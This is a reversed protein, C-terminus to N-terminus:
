SVQRTLYFFFFTLNFLFILTSSAPQSLWLQGRRGEAGGKKQNGLRRWCFFFGTHSVLLSLGWLLVVYNGMVFGETNHAQRGSRGSAWSCWVGSWSRGGRNRGEKRLWGKAWAVARGGRMRELRLALWPQPQKMGDTDEAVCVVPCSYQAIAISGLSLWPPQSSEVIDSRQEFWFLSFKM